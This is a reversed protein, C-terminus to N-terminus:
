RKPCTKIFERFERLESYNESVSIIYHLARPIDKLYSDVNDRHFKRAFIFIAKLHRQIGMWDFYKIFEEQSPLSTKLYQYYFDLAWQNVQDVPWDIYCDRILSVLDYTIPGIMADQFDLIGIHNNPLLMLNRSHYDRHICCQPQSIASDLLLSFTNNLLKEISTSVAINLHKKLYWEKFNELERHIFDADFHSLPLFCRQIKGLEELSKPYLTNANNSNLINFLVEDGLDTLLLFGKDTDAALVEPVQLNLNKFAQSVKIFGLNDETEPPAKVAIFSQNNINLRFYSRFSADGKLPTLSFESSFQQNLWEHLATM